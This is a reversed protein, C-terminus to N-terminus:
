RANLFASAYRVLKRFRPAENNVDESLDFLASIPNDVARIDAQSM